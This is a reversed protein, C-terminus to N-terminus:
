NLKVARVTRVEKGAILRYFYVGAAARTGNTARGDWMRTHEGAPFEGKALVAVRRGLLDYVGLEVQTKQPLAFSVRHATGPNPSVRLSLALPNTPEVGASIFHIDSDNRPWIAVGRDSSTYLLGTVHLMSGTDAAFTFNQETRLSILITDCLAPLAAVRFSGASDPLSGDSFPVVKVCEVRVLVGAYDDANTTILNPDCSQDSLEAVTALEPEPVTAAGEDIIGSGVAYMLETAGYYEQVQCPILYQHGVTMGVPISYAPVGSRLGGGADALFYLRDNGLFKEVLIGRVSVQEGLGGGPGAFRSMDRCPEALLSDELPTQVDLCSLVGLIFSLSQQPSKCVPCKESGINQSQISELSLRPLVDTITLEVVAGSGGVVTAADVTSGSLQSGLKYNATNQASTVDVNKDFMLRLKNDATPYAVSLNPPAPVFVDSPSRLCIAWAASYSFMLGQVSDVVTGVEPAVIGVMPLRAGDVEISDGPASDDANVGLWVKNNPLSGGPGVRAVRIPGRVKVLMNGVRAAVTNNVPVDYKYDTTTGVRFPPLPNGVSVKRIIQVVGYQGMLEKTHSYWAVVGRVSVENGIALGNPNTSSSEMVANTFLQLGGWDTAGTNEIFAAYGSPSRFAVIIGRVGLVTDTTAPNCHPCNGSACGTTDVIQVITVSDTCDYPPPGPPYTYNVASAAPAICALLAFIFLTTTFVRM